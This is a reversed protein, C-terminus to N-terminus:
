ISRKRSRQMGFIMAAFAVLVASAPEPVITAIFGHFGTRDQYLGVIKNGSIDLANTYVVGPGPIDITTFNGGQYLFGHTKQLTEDYVGVIRDGDIGFPNTTTSSLPDNITTYTSGVLLYGNTKGNASYSGVIESGYIDTASRNTGLPNPPLDLYSTGDYLYPKQTFTSDVYNGVVSSGSIGFAQTRNVVQPDALPPDLTKFSSGDYVFGHWGNNDTYTGVVRNGDVRNIDTYLSGPVDFPTFSGAQYIFGHGTLPSGSSSYTGAIINGDVSFVFTDAAGPYNLTQFSFDAFASASCLLAFFGGCLIRKM